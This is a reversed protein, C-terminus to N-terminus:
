GRLGPSALYLSIVGVRTRPPEVTYCRYTSRCLAYWLDGTVSHAAKKPRARSPALTDHRVLLGRVKLLFSM